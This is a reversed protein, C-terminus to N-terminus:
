CGGSRDTPDGVLYTGGWGLPHSFHSFSSDGSWPKAIESLLLGATDELTEAALLFQERRLKRCLTHLEGAALTIGFM